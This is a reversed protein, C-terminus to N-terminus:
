RAPSRSCGGGPRAWLGPDCCSYAGRPNGVCRGSRIGEAIQAVRREYALRENELEARRKQEIKEQERRQEEVRRNQNEQQERVADRRRLEKQLEEQKADEGLRKQTMIIDQRELRIVAGGAAMGVWALVGLAFWIPVGNPFDVQTPGSATQAIPRLRPWLRRTTLFIILAAGFGLGIVLPKSWTTSFSVADPLISDGSGTVPMVLCVGTNRDCYSCPPACQQKSQQQAPRVLAAQLNQRHRLIRSREAETSGSYSLAADCNRIAEENTSSVDTNLCKLLYEVFENRTFQYERQAPQRETFQATNEITQAQNAPAETPAFLSFILVDDRHGIVGCNSNVVPAKGYMTVTRQDLSVPGAVTYPLAGCTRSFVYAAGSYQNDARRGDFLLTGSRVGVELLDSAPTQYHFQRRAGASSLSVVSGNHQWLTTAGQAAADIAWSALIAWAILRLSSHM